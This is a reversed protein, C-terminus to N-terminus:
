EEAPVDIRATIKNEIICQLMELEDKDFWTLGCIGCRDIEILYALSYFTRFMPNGCKPCSLATRPAAPTGTIKGESVRRQNDNIVAGALLRVRETCEVDRRAIIRQVRATGVLVGGCFSCRHITTQEYSVGYLPQRCSPCTLGSPDGGSQPLRETFIRALAPLEAARVPDHDRGPSVWSLPTFSPILGLEAVSFPGQWQRDDDILYYGPGEGQERTAPLDKRTAGLRSVHAMRLLVAIRKHLPPHTSVLEYWGRTDEERSEEASNVICLMEMGPGIIGSGITNRELFQLAEALALPDRTLRVAGADARYERERSILMSLLESLKLMVWFLWFVPHLGHYREDGLGKAKELASAYMGFLSVAVTAEVCDGSLIHYAEHAVVTELQPRTLRSLLGETIGIMADGRLDAVALANMSLSPIVVGDIKRRNGTAVHIEDMINLFRRHVGDEPDPQVAGLQGMISRAVGFASFYFHIAAFLGSALFVRFVDSLRIFDGASFLGGLICKFSLYLIMGTSFYMALLVVFLLSIVRSKEEEVEVFTIPM